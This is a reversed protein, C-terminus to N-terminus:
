VSGLRISSCCLIAAGGRRGPGAPPTMSCWMARGKPVMRGAVEVTAGLFPGVDTLQWRGDVSDQETWRFGIADEGWHGEIKPPKEEQAGAVPLLEGRASYLLCFLVGGLVVRSSRTIVATLFRDGCFAARSFGADSTCCLPM